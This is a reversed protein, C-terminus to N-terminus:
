KGTFEPSRKSLFADLAESFDSTTQAKAQNNAELELQDALPNDLSNHVLQKAMGLARTPRKALTRALEATHEDLADDAVTEWILGWREASQADISEGTLIAGMARAHGALRPMFYSSGADPVLGISTFLQQFSASDAAIVMDAALAVSCGAGATLGQVAAVIPKEMTQMAEIVPHYHERLLVDTNIANDGFSEKLDAGSSFARGTATIRVARVNDDQSAQNLAERTEDLLAMSLANLKDPRNLTIYGVHDAIEYRICEFAM